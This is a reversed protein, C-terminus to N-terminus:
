NPTAIKATMARTFYDPGVFAQLQAAGTQAILSAQQNQDCFAQIKDTGFMTNQAGHVFIIPKKSVVTQLLESWDAAWRCVDSVLRGVDEFSCSILRQTLDFYAPDSQILASDVPSDAFFYDVIKAEGAPGRRFNAAIIKHPALLLDPMYRATLMTRKITKPLASLERYSRFPVGTDLLVVQDVREGYQRAFELAYLGGSASGAVRVKQVELSDLLGAYDRAFAQPGDTRPRKTTSASGPKYPAIVRLGAAECAARFAGNMEPPLSTNILLVADGSRDGFELYSLTGSPISVTRVVLAHAEELPSGAPADDAGALQLLSAVLLILQTQGSMSMKNYISALQTRVTRISRDRIEAVKHLDATQFITQIVELESPTLEYVLALLNNTQANWIPRALRLAMFVQRDGYTEDLLDIPSAIIVESPSNKGSVEFLLPTDLSRDLLRPVLQWAKLTKLEAVGAVADLTENFDQNAAVLKGCENLLAMSVPQRAVYSQPTELDTHTKEFLENARVFHRKFFGQWNSGTGQPSFGENLYQDFAEFLTEYEAYDSLSSYLGALVKNAIATIDSAM